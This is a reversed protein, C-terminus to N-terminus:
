QIGREKPGLCLSLPNWKSTTQSIYETNYYLDLERKLYPGQNKNKALCM